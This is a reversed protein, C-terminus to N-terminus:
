SYYEVLCFEHGEPDTMVVVAGDDYDHREGTCGGGLAAVTSIGTDLDDVTVDLHIRVKGAPLEPVPQFVLRPQPDGREGLYVWGDPSPGPARGLLASWFRAVREPDRCDITVGSWVNGM